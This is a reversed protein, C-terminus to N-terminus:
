NLLKGVSDGKGTYLFACSTAIGADPNNGPKFVIYEATAGSTIAGVLFPQTTETFQAFDLRAFFGIFWKSLDPHSRVVLTNPLRSKKAIEGLVEGFKITSDSSVSDLLSELARCEDTSCANQMLMRIRSQVDEETSNREKSIERVITRYGIPVIRQDSVVGDRVVTIATAESTVDAITFYASRPSRRRMITSDVLTSSRFILEVGPFIRLIADKLNQRMGSFMESELTVVGIHGARKGIPSSTSYGNLEVRVISKEFINDESLPSEVSLAKESLQVIMDGIIEAEERLPAKLTRAHSRIWPAHMVVLAKNISKNQIDSNAHMNLLKEGVEGVKQLIDSAIQDQNRDEHKLSGRLSTHIIVPRKGRIEVIAAGVSGSGVDFVAVLKGPQLKSLFPIQM